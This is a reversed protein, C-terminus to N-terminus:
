GSNQSAGRAVVTHFSGPLACSEVASLRQGRHGSDARLRSVFSDNPMRMAVTSPQSGSARRWDTSPSLDLHWSKLFHKMPSARNRGSADPLVRDGFENFALTVTAFRASM